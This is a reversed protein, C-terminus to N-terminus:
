ASVENRSLRLRRRLAGLGQRAIAALGAPHWPDALILGIRQRKTAVWLRKYADDGRGFDLERVRDRELLEQIMLATLVTGPSAAKEAEAHCLKLVTARAGGRDLVWYQAAVPAGDTRRRLLGLRLLGARAAARMLAPDFGPFPEEPKWSAARVAEYAAIGAELAPGPAAIRELDFERAARALKRRVTSRLASPRAAFYSEWTAGPPLAEHWNVFHDYRLTAIGGQRLGALLPALGPATPDLAELRAPPGGRLLRAVDRGAARLTADSADRAALLPRWDLTYPTALSGLRRGRRILPLLTAGVAEACVAVEGPALAHALLTDYWLRSAFFEGENASDLFRDCWAPLGSRPDLVPVLHAATVGPGRLIGGEAM